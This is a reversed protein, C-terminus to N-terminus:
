PFSISGSSYLTHRGQGSQGPDCTVFHFKIMRLFPSSPHLTPWPDGKGTFVKFRKGLQFESLCHLSIQLGFFVTLM